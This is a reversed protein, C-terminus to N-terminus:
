GGGGVLMYCDCCGGTTYWVQKSSLASSNTYAHYKEWCRCDTRCMDRSLPCFVEQEGSENYEEAKKKAEEKTM